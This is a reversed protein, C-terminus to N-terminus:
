VLVSLYDCFLINIYITNIIQICLIVFSSSHAHFPILLDSKKVFMKQFKESKLDNMLAYKTKVIM